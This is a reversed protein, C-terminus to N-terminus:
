FAIYAVSALSVNKKELDLIGKRSSKLYLALPPINSCMDKTVKTIWQEQIM